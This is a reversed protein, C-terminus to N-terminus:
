LLENTKEAAKGLKKVNCLSVFIHWPTYELLYKTQQLTPQGQWAKAKAITNYIERDTTDYGFPNVALRIM